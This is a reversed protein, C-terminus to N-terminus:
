PNLDGFGLFETFESDISDSFLKTRLNNDGTGIGYRGAFSVSNTHLGVIGMFRENLEQLIEQATGALKDDLTKLNILTALKWQSKLALLVNLLNKLFLSPYRDNWMFMGGYQNGNS